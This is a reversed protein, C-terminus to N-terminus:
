KEKCLQLTPVGSNWQIGVKSDPCRKKDSNNESYCRTYLETNELDIDKVNTHIHHQM